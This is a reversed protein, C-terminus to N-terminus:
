PIGVIIRPVIIQATAVNIQQWSLALDLLALMDLRGNTRFSCKAFSKALDPLFLSDRLLLKSQIASQVTSVDAENLAARLTGRNPGYDFERAHKLHGRGIDNKAHFGSQGLGAM